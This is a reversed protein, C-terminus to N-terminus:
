EDARSDAFLERRMKVRLLFDPARVWLAPLNPSIFDDAVPRVMQQIAVAKPIERGAHRSNDPIPNGLM